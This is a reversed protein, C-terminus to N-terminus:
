APEYVRVICTTPFQWDRVSLLWERMKEPEKVDFGIITDDEMLPHNEVIKRKDNLLAMEVLRPEKTELPNVGDSIRNGMRDYPVIVSIMVCGSIRNLPVGDPVDIFFQPNVGDIYNSQSIKKNLDIKLRGLDCSALYDRVKDLAVTRAKHNWVVDGDDDFLPNQVNPSRYREAVTAVAMQYLENCRELYKAHKAGNSEHCMMLKRTQPQAKALRTGEEEIEVSHAFLFRNRREETVNM